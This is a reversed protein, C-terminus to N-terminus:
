KQLDRACPWHWKHVSSKPKEEDFQFPNLIEAKAKSDTMKTYADLQFSKLMFNLTQQPSTTRCYSGLMM